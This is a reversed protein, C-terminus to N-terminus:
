CVWCRPASTSRCSRSCPSSRGPSSAGPGVVRLRHRAQRQATGRRRRRLLRLHGAPHHHVALLSVFASGVGPVLGLGRGVYAFFAGANSVKESMAAYGVSFLLLVLGVVLYAGPAGAGNGLVIAVPVAGTMGVLPAAAAVVFFVVGAIGLKNKALKEGPLLEHPEPHSTTPESNSM